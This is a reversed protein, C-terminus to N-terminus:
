GQPSRTHLAYGSQVNDVFWTYRRESEDHYRDVPWHVRKGADDLVWGQLLSTYIPHEISFLFSGGHTLSTAMTKVVAAYDDIYHLAMSSIIVDFQGSIPKIDQMAIVAYTIAPDETAQQASEIMRDSIDVGLVEAAGMQRAYRAVHGFGCGLDLVRKGTLDPVLSRIAPEEMVKNLGTEGWRLQSYGEFFLPDNYIIQNSM